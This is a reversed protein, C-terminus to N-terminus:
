QKTASRQAAATAKRNSQQMVIGVQRKDGATRAVATNSGGNDLVTRVM